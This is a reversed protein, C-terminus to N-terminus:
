SMAKCHPAAASITRYFLISICWILIGVCFSLIALSDFIARPNAPFHFVFYHITFLIFYSARFLHIIAIVACDRLKETLQGAM